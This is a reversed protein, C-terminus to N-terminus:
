LYVNFEEPEKATFNSGDELELSYAHLLQDKVNYKKNFKSNGYKFDGLIPHGISSLHARIQHTRGTILHIGLLTLEDNIEKIPFYETSIKKAGDAAEKSISVKNTKEDKLLYGDIIKKEEIRGLVVAHYIKKCNRDKLAKSLYQSSKLNKSFVIIGSTNRDLRNVVSPHFEKFDEPTLQGKSIMYSLAMENISIDTPNAKQSLLGSPKNIIIKDEDEYIIDINNSIEKLEEFYPDSLNSGTLKNFTDDSFYIKIIDGVNLKESGDAKKDNLLINKKRLMKYIFSSGAESLLRKLYKDLRQNSNKSDIKIEKM